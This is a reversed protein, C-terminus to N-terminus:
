AAPLMAALMREAQAILPRDDEQWPHFDRRYYRLYDPLVDRAYGTPGFYRYLGRAWSRLNSAQGDRKMLHWQIVLSSAILGVTAGVMALVRTEYSGGAAAYVDFAVAKHDLEEIAHWTWLPLLQPDFRAQLEPHTLLFKAMVATFHELACTVALNQLPSRRASREAIREEVRREIAGAPFGFSKLWQNFVHHERSHRAEQALFDQVQALLRPDSVADRLEGV